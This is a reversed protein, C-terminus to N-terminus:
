RKSKLKEIKTKSFAQWRKEIAEVKPLGSHVFLGYRLSLSKGPQVAIPKNLTLCAGMWGDVRVHFPAPHNVNSPHDMLTIGEILQNTIKGSYDVWKAPKRFVGNPGKENVGGESNRIVGGGDNVGISKAMRVGIMGFPNQNITTPKDSQGAEFQLDIVMFWQGNELPQIAIRRREILLVKDASDVWHNLSQVASENDSDELREIRQHVIKGINKGRDAWFSVGAVDNHSIWVSNHHSHGLPDHPHGMRTLSRKSAPGVVPYVFPRRNHKGFHFKALTVGDRQLAVKSDPLPTAQMRPVPKASALLDAAQDAAASISPACVITLFFVAVVVNYKVNPMNEHYRENGFCSALVSFV